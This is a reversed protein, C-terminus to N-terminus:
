PRGLTTALYEDAVRSIVYRFKGSPACEIAGVLDIAVSIDPGFLGRFGEVIAAGTDRSYDAEPVVRVHLRDLDEQIIQFEKVPAIERMVYIAALAHMVRGDPAVLFDTVRGQVPGLLPLGRGCRCAEEGAEAIDGTRYRIIPMAWSDLNTVIVEGGAGTAGDAAGGIEVLIGEANVHLGGDPCENAILGADRAGYEVAVRAGFVSEILSRQFPYLPEATVFIVRPWDGRGSWGTRRLYRALLYVASAYGFIKAPRKEELTRAYRALAAEGLDFASLFTSSVLWDRINRIVDQRSLELPSGWLVVEPAGVDVEFWRHARLRAADGFSAKARDTMVTVPAGTSGGTSLAQTGPIRTRPQLDDAHRRIDDRTLSPLRAFDAFSAIRAPHLDHEALVRQYYPVERYAFELHQKLRRFQLERLAAPSLWQTRELERLRAYTPKRKLREHLPFIMRSVLRPYMARSWFEWSM